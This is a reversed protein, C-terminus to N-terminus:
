RLPRGEDAYWLRRSVAPSRVGRGLGPDCRSGLGDTPHLARPPRSRDSPLRPATRQLVPARYQTTHGVPWALDAVVDDGVLPDALGATGVVVAERLEPRRVALLGVVPDGDEDDVETRLRSREGGLADVVERVATVRDGVAVPGVGSPTTVVHGESETNKGREDDISFCM